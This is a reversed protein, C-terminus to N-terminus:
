SDRGVEDGLYVVRWGIGRIESSNKVRDALMRVYRVKTTISRSWSAYPRTGNNPGLSEAIISLSALSSSLAGLYAAMTNLAWLLSLLKNVTTM